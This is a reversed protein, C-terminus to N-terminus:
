LPFAIVSRMNVTLRVKSGNPWNINPPQYSLVIQGSSLEITYLQIAGLFQRKKVIGIGADHMDVIIDDPRIMVEVHKVNQLCPACDVSGIETLISKGKVEGPIFVAHGIFDAVFRTKPNNYLNWPTDFQEIKGHDIVISRDGLDLAETQDHTVWLATSQTQKLVEKLDQALSTRLDQDISSLPEDLLILKPHPALSRALAVRQQQGGSLEHPYRDMLGQLGLLDELEVLRRLKEHRSYKFLGFTINKQINLHPFLAHDQFVMGINRLEPMVFMDNDFLVNDELSCAGKRVKQLGAIIRLLTTKGSGSPGVITIVEGQKINLSIPGLYFARESFVNSPPAYEIHKIHLYRQDAVKIKKSLIQKQQTQKAM